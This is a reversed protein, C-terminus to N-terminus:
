TYIYGILELPVMTRTILTIPNKSSQDWADHLALGTIKLFLAIVCNFDGAFIIERPGTQLLYALENTFFNRENKDRKPGRHLTFM